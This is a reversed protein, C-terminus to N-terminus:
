RGCKISFMIGRIIHYVSNWMKFLLKGASNLRGITSPNVRLEMVFHFIRSKRPSKGVNWTWLRTMLYVCIWNGNQFISSFIFNLNTASTKKKYHLFETKLRFCMLFNLNASTTKKYLNFLPCKQHSLSNSSFRPPAEAAAGSREKIACFSRLGDFDHPFGTKNYWILLMDRINVNKPLQQFSSAKPYNWLM